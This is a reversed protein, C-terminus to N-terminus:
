QALRKFETSNIPIFRVSDGPMLRTPPHQHPFFMEVPTTGIIHWGGPSANPYIITQRNAVAVAGKPLATRPTKRRAIDFHESLMGMYPAGPTFGLMFVYLPEQCHLDIVQAQTQQCHHAVKALDPGYEGGYCVPIEIAKDAHSGSQTFPQELLHQITEILTDVTEHKPFHAPHIHVAIVNFSPVIDQIGPHHLDRLAQAVMACRQGCEVTIPVNLTLLLTRDGQFALQWPAPVLSTM